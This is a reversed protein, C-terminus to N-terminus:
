SLRSRCCKKSKRNRQIGSATVANAEFIERVADGSLHRREVLATAVAVVAKRQRRILRDARRQLDQLDREVRDRLTLDARIAELVEQHPALYAITEGMGDSVHLAAIM